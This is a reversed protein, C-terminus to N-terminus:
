ADGGGDHADAGHDQGDETGADEEVQQGPQQQRPVVALDTELPRDAPALGGRDDQEDDGQKGDNRVEEPV